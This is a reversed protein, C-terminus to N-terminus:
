YGGYGMGLKLGTNWGEAPGSPSISCSPSWKFASWLHIGNVNKSTLQSTNAVSKNLLNLSTYRLM